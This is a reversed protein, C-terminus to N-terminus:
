LASPDSSSDGDNKSSHDSRPGAQQLWADIAPQDSEYVRCTHLKSDVVTYELVRVVEISREAAGEGSRWQELVKIMVCSEGKMIDLISVPVRNTVAQLNLLAEVASHQGSHTGALYHNGPWILTLDDHYLEFVALTEGGLWARCYTQVVEVAAQIDFESGTDTQTPMRPIQSKSLAPLEGLEVPRGPAGPKSLRGPKASENTETPGMATM